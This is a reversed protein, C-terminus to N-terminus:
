ICFIDMDLYKTNTPSNRQDATTLSTLDTSFRRKQQNLM